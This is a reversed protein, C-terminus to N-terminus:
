LDLACRFGTADTSDTAFNFTSWRAAFISPNPSNQATDGILTREGLLAGLCRRVLGRLVTGADKISLRCADPPHIRSSLCCLHPAVCDPFLAGIQLIM